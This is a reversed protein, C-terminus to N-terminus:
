VHDDDQVAETIRPDILPNEPGQGKEEWLRIQTQIGAELEPWTKALRGHKQRYTDYERSNELYRRIRNGYAPEQVFGSLAHSALNECADLSMQMLDVYTDIEEKIDQSMKRYKENVFGATAGSEPKIGSKEPLGKFLENEKAFVLDKEYEAYASLKVGYLMLKKFNSFYDYFDIKMQATEMSGQEFMVKIEGAMSRTEDDLGAKSANTYTEFMSNGYCQGWAAMITFVAIIWIKKM